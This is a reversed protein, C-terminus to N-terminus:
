PRSCRAALDVLWQAFAPPTIHRQTKSMLEVIGRTGRRRTPNALDVVLSRKSDQWSERPPVPPPFEPLDRVDCGVIYLWTPKDAVHGWDRQAVEITYGGWEDAMMNPQPMVCERWLKSNKPHELVGGLRRVQEVAVPGTKGDDHAKQHYRGWHGCPPHAVVPLAGDYGTADRAQDWCDVGAIKPYPGRKSDIYLAAVRM